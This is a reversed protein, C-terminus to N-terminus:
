TAVISLSGNSEVQFKFNGLTISPTQEEAGVTLNGEIEAQKMYATNNAFYTIAVGFKVKPDTFNEDIARTPKEYPSTYYDFYTSNGEKHKYLVCDCYYGQTDRFDSFSSPEYSIEKIRAKRCFEIRQASVRSFYDGNENEGVVLGNDGDFSFYSLKEAAEGKNMTVSGDSDVEFNYIQNGKEDLKPSGNDDFQAGIKITGGVITSGEILGASVCGALIGWYDNGDITYNGFVSKSTKFNDDSYLFKNNTIWGEHNDLVGDVKKRLHIGYNDWSIDQGASNTKISTTADILGQRIKEDIATAVDYGKQWYSSGSAVTKGANVAQALLDAHIDGQDKASLLDGFTCSFNSLDSFSLQVELLRAKKIFGKRMQVKIFNGLKFQYLIPEFEPIAYINKMSASFSLKPQSIKKLEKQAAVLLEKQTNIQDLDTDIETVCFCDDSYEDERLFLSLRELSEPAFNKDIAVDEAILQIREQAIKIQETISSILTQQTELASKVQQLKEFNSVYSQYEVSDKPKQDWEAAIQIDQIASYIDKKEELYKVGSDGFVLDRKVWTYEYQKQESSYKIECVHYEYSIDNYTITGDENVVKNQTIIKYVEGLHDLNAEPLSNSSNNANDPNLRIEVVEYETPISNEADLRQSILDYLQKLTETYSNVKVVYDGAKPEYSMLTPTVNKKLIEGSGANADVVLLADTSDIAKISIKDGNKLPVYITLVKTQRNYTYGTNGESITEALASGSPTKEVIRRTGMDQLTVFHNDFFEASVLDGVHLDKRIVLIGSSFAYETEKIEVDNIKVVTLTKNTNQIIFSKYITNFLVTDNEGLNNDNVILLNKNKDFSYDTIKIKKTETDSIYKEIYVSDIQGNFKLVNFHTDISDVEVYSHSTLKKTTIILQNNNYSFENDSLKEGDVTVKIIKDRTNGLVFAGNSLEISVQYGSFLVDLKNIVLIGTEENLSYDSDTLIASDIKISLIQNNKQYVPFKNGVLKISIKDGISLSYITLVGTNTDIIYDDSPSLITDNVAVSVVVKDGYLSLDFHTNISEVRVVTGAVLRNDTITLQNGKLTYNKTVINGIKVSVVKDKLNDLTFHNSVYNVTIISGHKLISVDIITITKNDSSVVYSTSKVGDVEVSSVKYESHSLSFSTIIEGLPTCVKVVDPSTIQYNIILTKTNNNYSYDNIESDNLYIISDSQLGKDLVFSNQYTFIKIIDGANLDVNIVLTKELYQYETSLLERTDNITIKSISTITSTIDFQNKCSIVEITDGNSLVAQPCTITNTRKNYSYEETVEGNIKVISNNNFNFDSPLQFSYSAGDFTFTAVNEQVTISEIDPDITNLEEEQMKPEYFKEQIGIATQEESEGNVDFEAVVKDIDLSMVSGNVNFTEQTSKVPFEQTNGAVFNESITTINFSEEISGSIDKSYFGSMYKDQKDMYLLYENYLKEGMWEPTCYYDLNMISSQGFNVNRIDLDDAGKVTLVTKIDDSSYNVKMENSLNEFTVIIDTDYKHKFENTVEIIDGQAPTITTFILQKTSPNYQYQTIVHGNITITSDSSIDNQFKFTNTKGDGICREVENESYINVTNNITDFEVYCKFTDCMDNMIFDYISQRDIEFSRGQTALEDDVHGVTWGYAKQLVLHILSHGVNQPNYLVVGDISGITDGVDGENIIFTELYRQSLSYELSYANIHKYEKIGDGNVEPDQLQFYGFGQLYVLRLGEIYDYYPTPIMEGTITDCYVSPIDFSIESYSNFKFTGELNTANLKCIKDKNTQCLIVDPVQYTDSLLDKPLQM